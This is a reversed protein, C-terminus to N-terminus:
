MTSGKVMQLIQKLDMNPYQALLLRQVPWCYIRCGWQFPHCIWGYRESYPQMAPLTKSSTLHRTYQLTIRSGEPRLLFFLDSPQFRCQYFWRLGQDRKLHRYLMLMSFVSSFPLTCQLKGSSWSGAHMPLSSFDSSIQAPFRLWLFSQVKNSRIHGSLSFCIAGARCLRDVRGCSCKKTGQIKRM